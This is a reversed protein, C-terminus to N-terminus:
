DIMSRPPQFPNGSEISEPEMQDSGNEAALKQQRLSDALKLFALAAPKGGFARNAIVHVKSGVPRFGVFYDGYYLDSIDGWHYKAIAQSYGIRMEDENYTVCIEQDPLRATSSKEFMKDTLKWWVSAIVFPVSVALIFLLLQAALQNGAGFAVDNIVFITTAVILLIAASSLLKTLSFGIHAVEGIGNGFRQLKTMKMKDIDDQTWFFRFVKYNQPDSFWQHFYDLESEHADSMRETVFRSCELRQEAAIARKPIVMVKEYHKFVFHEPTESFSDFASWTKEFKSSEFEELVSTENLTVLRVRSERDAFGIRGLRYVYFVVFFIALVFISLLVTWAGIIGLVLLCVAFGISWVTIKTAPSREVIGSAERIAKLDTPTYQYQFKFEPM